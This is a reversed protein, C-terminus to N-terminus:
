QVSNESHSTGAIKMGTAVRAQMTGAHRTEAPPDLVPAASPTIVVFPSRRRAYGPLEIGDRSSFEQPRGRWNFLVVSARELPRSSVHMPSSTSM